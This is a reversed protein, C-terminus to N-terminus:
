WQEGKIKGECAGAVWSAVESVTIIEANMHLRDLFDYLNEKTPDWVQVNKGSDVILDTLDMLSLDFYDIVENPTYGVREIFEAITESHKHWVETDAEPTSVQEPRDMKEEVRAYILRCVEQFEYLDGLFDKWGLNIHDVGWTIQTGGRNRLVWQVQEPDVSAWQREDSFTLTMLYGPYEQFLLSFKPTEEDSGSVPVNGDHVLTLDGFSGLKPSATITQALMVKLRHLWEQQNSKDM